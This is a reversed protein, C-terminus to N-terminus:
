DLLTVGYGHKNSCDAFELTNSEKYVISNGAIRAYSISSLTRVLQRQAGNDKIWRWDSRESKGDM